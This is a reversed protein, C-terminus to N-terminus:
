FSQNSQSGPVSIDLSSKQYPLSITSVILFAAGFCSIAEWENQWVINESSPQELCVASDSIASHTIKALSFPMFNFVKTKGRLLGACKSINDSYPKLTNRPFSATDKFKPRRNSFLAASRKLSISGVTGGTTVGLKTKSSLSISILPEINNM